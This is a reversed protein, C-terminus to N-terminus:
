FKGFDYNVIQKRIRQNTVTMFGMKLWKIGSVLYGEKEIRRASYLLPCKKIMNFKGHRALRSVYDCDESLLVKLDYGEILDHGKKEAIIAAGIAVPTKGNKKLRSVLNSIGSYLNYHFRNPNFKIYFSAAILKEERFQKLSCSLFGATLVSDADLFLLTDGKAQKAGENRQFSPHKIKDSLIFKTGYRKAVEFTKDSSGADSVIIEYNKFDQKYISDLLRPLYKEENLTPIIISLMNFYLKLWNGIVPIAM